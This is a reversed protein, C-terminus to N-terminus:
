PGQQYWARGRVLQLPVRLFFHVTQGGINGFITLPGEPAQNTAGLGLGEDARTEVMTVEARREMPTWEGDKM